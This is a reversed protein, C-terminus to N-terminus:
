TKIMFNTVLFPQMNNHGTGSGAAGTTSTSAADTTNTSPGGSNAWAANTQSAYVTNGAPTAAAGLGCGNNSTGQIGTSGSASYAGSGGPTYGIYTGSVTHSHGGDSHNHSGQANWNHYHDVGHTHNGMTHTHAMGHTHSALEATVLAHTEEGGTVGLVRNTLGSGTGAGISVRGRKDPLNFTTSGDGVGYTTGFVAFLASYTTRSVAQGQAMLFGTPAASGGFELITGTPVLFGLLASVLDHCANDGGVYDTANGSLLAM